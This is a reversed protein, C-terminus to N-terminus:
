QDEGAQTRRRIRELADNYEQWARDYRERIVQRKQTVDEDNLPRSQLIRASDPSRPSFPNLKMWWSRKRAPMM